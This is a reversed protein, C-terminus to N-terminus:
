GGAMHPFVIVQDGDHLEIGLDQTFEGNLSIQWASIQEAFSESGSICREVDLFDFLDALSAPESLEVLAKGRQSGEPLCDRLNAFLQIQIQM